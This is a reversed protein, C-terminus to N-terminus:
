NPMWILLSRGYGHYEGSEDRLTESRLSRRFTQLKAFLTWSEQLPKDIIVSAEERKTELLRLPHEESSEPM